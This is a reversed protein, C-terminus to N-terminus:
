SPWFKGFILGYDLFLNILVASLSAFLPIKTECCERVASTYAQGIAFPLMSVLMVGMYERGYKLTAAILEPADDKSIYLSILQRDFTSYIIGFIVTILVVVAIRFHVTHKQGRFDGKGFFQAGFIGPGSIAGFISINFIFMFQNVISVGNMQETGLQGVMINDLMSVFNTVLNQLIMPVVMALVMIYFNSDGIYKNKLKRFM